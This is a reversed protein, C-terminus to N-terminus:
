NLKSKNSLYFSLLVILTFDLDWNYVKKPAFRLCYIWYFVIIQYKQQVINSQDLHPGVQM